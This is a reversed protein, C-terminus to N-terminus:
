TCLSFSFSLQLCESHQLCKIQKKHLKKIQFTSFFIIVFGNVYCLVGCLADVNHQIPGGSNLKFTIGLFLCHFLKQIFSIHMQESCLGINKKYILLKKDGLSFSFNLSIVEVEHPVTGLQNLQGTPVFDLIIIMRASLGDRWRWVHTVHGTLLKYGRLNLHQLNWYFFLLSSAVCVQSLM